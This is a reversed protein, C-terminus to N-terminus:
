NVHPCEDLNVNLAPLVTQWPLLACQQRAPFQKVAAFAKLEENHKGALEGTAIVQNFAAFVSALQNKDSHILQKALYAMCAHCVSCAHGQYCVNTVTGNNKQLYLQLMDGCYDNRAELSLCSEGEAWAPLVENDFYPNNRALRSLVALAHARSQNLDAAM